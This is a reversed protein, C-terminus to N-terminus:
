VITPALSNLSQASVGNQRLYHIFPEEYGHTVFVQNAGTAAVATTLDHWDAHDSLVFGAKCWNHVRGRRTLFWGSAMAQEYPRLKYLWDAHAAQPPAIILATKMAKAGLDGITFHKPLTIGSRMYAENMLAVQKQVVIPGISPDVGNLIRQAKGLSYAYIISPMGHAQNAQWWQNIQQMTYAQPHWRYCPLAFTSETVYVSCKVPEFTDSTNDPELKYDGSVAWRLGKYDILVQAAGLIHGAPFLTIVVNGMTIPQGYPVTQINISKGLRAKLIYKSRETCLYYNMGQRAHDAHGHTIVARRVKRVPDIYFDGAPCYLGEPLLVLLDTEKM